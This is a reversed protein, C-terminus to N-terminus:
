AANLTALIRQARMKWTHDAVWARAQTAKHAVEDSRQPVSTIGQALAHADDPVVLTGCEESLIEMISPLRSAVVPTGSAMYEFLKMPSTSYESIAHQATNPLVLVDAARQWLPMEQHPRHGLIRINKVSGWQRAFRGIDEQTGGVFCVLFDPQLERAARALTDVGKWAYLHGTYVIIKKDQPLDLKARADHKTLTLSFEDLTVANQEVFARPLSRPFDKEFLSMKVQNTVLVHRMRSLFFRWYWFSSEPYDHMAFCTRPFFLSALLLPLTDNSYIIDTKKAHLRVYVLTSISFVILSLLFALYNLFSIGFIDLTPLYVANIPRPLNWYSQATEGSRGRRRPVLVVVQVGQETFAEAEHAAFLAAAKESPFRGHFILFIRKKNM